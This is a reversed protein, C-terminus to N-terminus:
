VMRYDIGISQCRSEIDHFNNCGLACGASIKDNLLGCICFSGTECDKSKNSCDATDGDKDKKDICNAYDIATNYEEGNKANEIAAKNKEYCKANDIASKNKRCIICKGVVCALVCSGVVGCGIMVAKVVNNM